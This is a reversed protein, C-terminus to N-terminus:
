DVSRAPAPTAPGTTHWNGTLTGPQLALGKFVPEEVPANRDELPAPKGRGEPNATKGFWADDDAYERPSMPLLDVPHM